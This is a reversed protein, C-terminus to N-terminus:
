MKDVMGGPPGGADIWKEIEDPPLPKAYYYGQGIECGNERLVDFQVAEEIGEAVVQLGLARAMALIALAIARAEPDSAIDRVFGRDIKIEDIPYRRMYSLSSYGTGFDDVSLRVGLKRLDRLMALTHDSDDLLTSETFEVCLLIPDFKYSAIYRRILSPVHTKRFHRPSLNVSVRPPCLGRRQWDLIQRIATQLVWEGIRDILGCSEAVPIFRDPSVLGQEPHQWRILAEMGVLANDALNVQPQYVLFFEQRELARRLGNEFDHREEVAQRMEKSFFQYNNRGMEKARYMAMDANKLLAAPNDGDGPFVSIGISASIFIEHGDILMSEALLRIMRRASQNIDNQDSEELLVAFEDGGLRAVTDSARVCEQLREAVLTVLKDGAEHGLTDNVLKFNDLDVFLVAIKHNHRRAKNLAVLLRDNFLTRNPLHTLPDHTALFEIRRQSEKAVSIDSFIGVYNMLKGSPDKVVNINLWELYVEGNKRRNWIEGQWHGHANLADWMAGYFDAGHRGSQLMSPKRGVAEEVGYGTIRTFADNVTLINVKDDTVVIGEGARDFVRAALQLQREAHKRRTVDQSQTCVAYILGDEGLLPFRISLLDFQGGGVTATDEFEKAHRHRVVEVEKNGTEEAFEAGFLQVDTRGLVEEGRLGYFREFERNVFLYRGSIDKLSILSTSHNMIDLLKRQSARLERQVTLLETQDVLVIVAGTVGNHSKTYPQIRLSYHRNASFIQQEFSKRTRLVECVWASFDEMGPPWAIQSLKVDEFPSPALSFLLAALRNYRVVSLDKGVLLMPIGTNNLITELDENLLTLEGSKVQLEENITSLEENASQLEENAAQVEENLIQMDENSTELVEIVAQLHERTTVLEDELAQTSEVPSGGSTAPSEETGQEFCVLFVTGGCPHQVPHVALRMTETAGGQEVRRFRGRATEGKKLAQYLLTQVDARFEKRILHLLDFSPKGSSIAMYRAADGHLYQISFREDVVIGPPAYLKQAETRYIDEASSPTVRAPPAPENSVITMGNPRAPLRREVERPAFIRAEKNVARFLREQPGIGESCGLFLVGDPNLAYHFVSLIRAQLEPQFYILVNRCSVLDLRLFPPSQALDHRAFVVMERLAKTVEVRNGQCVFYKGALEPALGNLAAAPYIGRRALAIANADIDTAFIQVRLGGPNDGLIEALLIGISYAEEGTACGPVWARIEEGPRKARVITELAGRLADFAAEDRFFATVSILIDKSLRELEEVDSEVVALYDEIRSARRAAMRRGIRRWLTAEKYGSFDVRTYQRIKLLLKRLAATTTASPHEEEAKASSRAIYSLEEAIKAPPLIWDVCETDIAAQPMDPYKASSPEQAFTCGGGAKIQRMGRVGDTGTGSLIVGIADDGQDLSLSLLFADISPCPVVGAAVPTLCFRSGALTVNHGSPAIYVVDPEPRRGNEIERVPLRTKRGLLQALESHHAPSHHQVVAYVMGLGPPLNEVLQSLAELGGASAGIGVVSRRLAQIEGSEKEGEPVAGTHAGRSKRKSPAPGM